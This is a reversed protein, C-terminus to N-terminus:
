AELVCDSITNIQKHERYAVQCTNQILKLHGAGFFNKLVEVMKVTDDTQEARGYQSMDKYPIMKLASESVALEKQKDLRITNL